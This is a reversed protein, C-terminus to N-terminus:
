RFKPITTNQNVKKLQKPSRFGITKNVQLYLTSFSKKILSKLNKKREQCEIVFGFTTIIVTMIKLRNVDRSLM